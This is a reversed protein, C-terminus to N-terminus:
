RPFAMQCPYYMVTIKPLRALYIWTFNDTKIPTGTVTLEIGKNQIEGANVENYSYGTSVPVPIALIQNKSDNVYYSFDFSLRSQLFALETGVEFSSTKEPVLKSNGLTNAIQYAPVNGFPFTTNGFSGNVTTKGYTTTLQYPDTDSGVQAFSSRLKGYSLFDFASNKKLM